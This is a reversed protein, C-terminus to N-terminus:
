SVKLNLKNGYLILGLINSYSLVRYIFMCVAAVFVTLLGTIVFLPIQNLEESIFSTPFLYAVYTNTVYLVLSHVGWLRIYKDIFNNFTFQRILNYFVVIASIACLLKIITNKFSSIGYQYHGVLLVFIVLSVSIGIKSMLLKSLFDYKAIIVGLFYFVYFLMFNRMFSIVDLKWIALLALAIILLFILDYVINKKTNFRYSLFLWLSYLITIFFLYYLFWFGGGNILEKFKEVFDFVLTDSFFFPDVILPWAFFPLLITRCKKLVFAGYNDFIKPKIVKSAVYGCLFMFLPMRFTSGYILIESSQGNIVNGTIVHGMVVLLINIGRLRDIYEIRKKITKSM